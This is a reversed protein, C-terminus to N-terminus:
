TGGCEPCPRGESGRRDYGCAPCRGRQRRVASRVAVSAWPLAFLLVAWASAYFATNVALGGLVPMVPLAPPPPPETYAFVKHPKIPLPIGGHVLEDWYPPASRFNAQSFTCYLALRPWGRAMLNREDSVTNGSPLHARGNVWPLLESHAWRPLVEEPMPAPGPPKGQNINLMVRRKVLRSQMYMGGARKWRQVTLFYGEDDGGSIDRRGYAQYTPPLSGLSAPNGTDQWPLPTVFVLACAVLVTTALGLGLVVIARVLLRHSGAGPKM